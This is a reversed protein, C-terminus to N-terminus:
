DTNLKSLSKYYYYEELFNKSEFTYNDCTTAGGWMFIPSLSYIPKDNLYYVIYTTQAPELSRSDPDSLTYVVCILSDNELYFIASECGVSRYYIISLKDEVYYYYATRFRISDEVTTITSILFDNKKVEIISDVREIYISDASNKQASLLCPLLMLLFFLKKM